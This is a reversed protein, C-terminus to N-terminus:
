IKPRYPDVVKSQIKKVKVNDFNNQIEEAKNKNSELIVKRFESFIYKDIEDLLEKSKKNDLVLERNFIEMLSHLPVLNLIVYTIVRIM